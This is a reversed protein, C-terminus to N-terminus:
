PPSFSSTPDLRLYFESHVPSDNQLLVWMWFIKLSEFRTEHYIPILSAPITIIYNRGINTIISSQPLVLCLVGKLLLKLYKIFGDHVSQVWGIQDFLCGDRAYM